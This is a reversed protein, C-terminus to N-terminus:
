PATDPTPLPEANDSAALEAARVQAPLAAVQRDLRRRLDAAFGPANALLAEPATALLEGPSARPFGRDLGEIAVRAAGQYDGLDILAARVFLDVDGALVADGSAQAMSRGRAVAALGRDRQGALGLAHGRWVEVHGAVKPHPSQADLLALARRAARVAGPADGLAQLCHARLLDSPSSTGGVSVRLAEPARDLAPLLGHCDDVEVLVGALMFPPLRDAQARAQAALTRMPGADGFTARRARALGFMLFPNDPDLALARRAVDLWAAHDGTSEYHLALLGLMRLSRPDLRRMREFLM